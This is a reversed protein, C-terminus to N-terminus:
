LAAAGAGGGTGVHGHCVPMASLGVGAVMSESSSQGRGMQQAQSYQARGALAGWPEGVWAPHAAFCVQFAIV